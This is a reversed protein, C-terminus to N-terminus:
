EAPASATEFTVYWSLDDHLLRLVADRVLQRLRQVDGAPWTEEGEAPEGLTVRVFLAPNGDADRGREIDVREVHTGRLKQRTLEDQLADLLEKDLEPSM